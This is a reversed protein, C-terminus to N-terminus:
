TINKSGTYECNNLKQRLENLETLINSSITMTEQVIKHDHDNKVQERERQARDAALLVPTTYAGFMNIMTSIFLFPYPDFAKHTFHAYSMNGGCWFLFFFTLIKIFKYTGFFSAIKEIAQTHKMDKESMVKNLNKIEKIEKM